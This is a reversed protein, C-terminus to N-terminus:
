CLFSCILAILIRSRLRINNPGDRPRQFRQGPSHCLIRVWFVLFSISLMSILLSKAAQAIPTPTAPSLVDIVFACMAILLILMALKARKEIM